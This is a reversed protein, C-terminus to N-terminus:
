PTEDSIFNFNGNEFNLISKLSISVIEKHIGNFITLGAEDFLVGADPPIESKRMLSIVPGPNGSVGDRNYIWYLVLVLDSQEEPVGVKTSVLEQLIKRASVTLRMKDERIYSLWSLTSALCHYFAPVTGLEDNAWFINRRKLFELSM